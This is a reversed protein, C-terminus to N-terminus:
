QMMIDDRDDIPESHYMKHEKRHSKKVFSLNCMKCQYLHVRSKHKLLNDSTSFDLECVPCVTTGDAHLKMHNKLERKHIFYKDCVYCVHLKRNKYLTLSAFTVKLDGGFNEVKEEEKQKGEETKDRTQEKQSPAGEKDPFVQSCCVFPIVSTGSLVSLLDHKSLM